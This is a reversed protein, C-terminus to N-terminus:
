PYPMARFEDDSLRNFEGVMLYRGPFRQKMRRFLEVVAEEGDRLFEHFVMLGHFAQVDQVHSEFTEPHTIDGRCLAIRDALGAAAVRRGAEELAEQSIDM